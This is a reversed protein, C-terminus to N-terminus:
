FFCGMSAHLLATVSLQSRIPYVSDMDRIDLVNNMLRAISAKMGMKSVSLVGSPSM